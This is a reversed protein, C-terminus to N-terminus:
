FWGFKAVLEGALGSLSADSVGTIGNAGIVFRYSLGACVRFFSVINIEVDAGPELVFFGRNDVNAPGLYADGWGILTGAKFHILEDSFGIYEAVLGGYGFNLKEGSVFIDTTLGYGGGGLLFMHNIIWGGYGGTLVCFTNNLYTFKVAPGGAGGHTVDEGVLTKQQANVAVPIMVILVMLLFIYKKM